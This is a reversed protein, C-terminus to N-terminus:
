SGSISRVSKRVQDYVERLEAALRELNKRINEDDESLEQAAPLDATISQIKELLDTQIKQFVRLREKEAELVSATEMYDALKANADTLSQNYDEIERLLLKERKINHFLVAAGIRRGRASLIPSIKVLYYQQRNELCVEFQHEGLLDQFADRIEPHFTQAAEQLLVQSIDDMNKCDQFSTEGRPQKVEVINGQSDSIVAIDDLVQFIASLDPSLSTDSVPKHRLFFYGVTGLFTLLGLYLAAMKVDRFTKELPLDIIATEMALCFLFVGIFLSVVTISTLLFTRKRSVQLYINLGTLLVLFVIFVSIKIIIDSELIRIKLV